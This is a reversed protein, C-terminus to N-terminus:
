INKSDKKPIVTGLKMVATYTHCINPVPVKQGGGGGHMRSFCLFTWGSYFHFTNTTDLSM